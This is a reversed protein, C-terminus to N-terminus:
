FAHGFVVFLQRDERSVAYDFRMITSQNWGLRAGSGVSTRWDSVGIDRVRDWVRGADLFPTLELTFDQGLLSTRAVRNRWELSGYGMVPGTFRGARYGRLTRSGGVAEIGGYDGASWTDWSESLAIEPGALVGLGWRQALVSRWRGREFLPTWSQVQALQKTFTYESGIAPASLEVAVEAFVGRTPDPEFDRTDYMIGGQLLAVRNHNQPAGVNFRRWGDAGRRSETFRSTAQRADVPAGSTADIADDVLDGDYPTLNAIQFEYGVGVRMRGGALTREVGLAAITRDFQVDHRLANTVAPQLTGDAGFGPAALRLADEYDNWRRFTRRTGTTADVISLPAMSTTGFGFYQQNPDELRSAELRLRWPKDRFYPLDAALGGFTRGSPFVLAEVAVSARYPTYEFLPDTRQGNQFWFLTGGYGVGNVPNSEVKPLGTVFWGERKNALEEEGLRKAEDPVFTEGGRGQAGAVLAAAHLGILLAATASLGRVPDTTTAFRVRDFLAMTMAHVEQVAISRVLLVLARFDQSHYVRARPQEGPGDCLTRDTRSKPRRGRMAEIAELPAIARILVASGFGDERTVANVCWHLGYSRYVYATGPPGFLHWTRPTRGAVAHCAPDHPGLYAETETIM